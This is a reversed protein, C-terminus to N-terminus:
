GKMYMFGSFIGRGPPAEGYPGDYPTSGGGRPPYFTNSSVDHSMNLHSLKIQPFGSLFASNKFRGNYNQYLIIM